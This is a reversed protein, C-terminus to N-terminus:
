GYRLFGFLVDGLVEALGLWFGVPSKPAQDQEEFYAMLEQSPLTRGYRDYEQRKAPDALVRYATVIKRIEEVEDANAPKGAAHFEAALKQFAEKIEQETATRVVGLIQYYDPGPPATL